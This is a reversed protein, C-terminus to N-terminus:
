KPYEKIMLDEPIAKREKFNRGSLQKMFFSIRAQKCEDRVDRAWEPDMYRPKAGSEGGVILWSLKTVGLRGNGTDFRTYLYHILHVPELMPEISVFRITAPIQLLVPIREDARKQNEATVGLWINPIPNSLDLSEWFDKM